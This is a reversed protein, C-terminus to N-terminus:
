WKVETGIAKRAKRLLRTVTSLVKAKLVPYSCIQFILETTKAKCCECHCMDYECRCCLTCVVKIQVVTHQNVKKDYAFDLNEIILVVM